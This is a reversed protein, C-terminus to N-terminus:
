NKFTIRMKKFRDVSMASVKYQKSIQLNKEDCMVQTLNKFYPLTTFSNNDTVELIKLNPLGSLVTLDNNSCYLYELKPLREVSRLSNYSCDLEEVKPLSDVSDVKNNRCNVRELSYLKPIRKIYNKNCILIKINHNIPLRQIRNYSIDLRRLSHLYPIINLRDIKNNKCCIERVGKPLCELDRLLNSSCDIVKLNHLNQVGNLTELNNDSCFLNEVTTPISKPLTVLELNSLDLVKGGMKQCEKFRYEVTDFDEKVEKLIPHNIKKLQELDISRQKKFKMDNKYMIVNKYKNNEKDM